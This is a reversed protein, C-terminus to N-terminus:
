TCNHLVKLREKIRRLAITVECHVHFHLQKAIITPKEDLLGTGVREAIPRVWAVAPLELALNGRECESLGRAHRGLFTAVPVGMTALRAVHEPRGAGCTDVQFQNPGIPVRAELLLTSESKYAPSQM